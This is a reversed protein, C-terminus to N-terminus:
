NTLLPQSKKDYIKSLEDCQTNLERPIWDFNVVVGKRRVARAERDANVYAAWYLTNERAKWKRSLINIVLQSDGRVNLVARGGLYHRNFALLGANLASFEALNNSMEPGTGIVGDGSELMEGARELTFGYAATGGPNKPGCSGDFHLTYVDMRQMM